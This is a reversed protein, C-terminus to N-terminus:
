LNMSTLLNRCTSSVQSYVSDDTVEEIWLARSRAKSFMTVTKRHSCQDSIVGFNGIAKNVLDNNEFKRLNVSM